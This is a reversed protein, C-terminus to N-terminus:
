DVSKFHDFGGRDIEREVDGEALRVGAGKPTIKGISTLKLGTKASVEDLKNEFRDNITFLLEYDEGGTMAQSLAEERAGGFYAIVGPGVPIAQSELLAGV